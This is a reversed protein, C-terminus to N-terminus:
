YGFVARLPATTELIASRVDSALESRGKGVSDTTVPNLVNNLHRFADVDALMDAAPAPAGLPLGLFRVAEGVVGAPDAVLDEYRFLACRGPASRVFDLIASNTRMWREMGELFRGERGDMRGYSLAVDLPDRVLFIFQADPYLQGIAPLHDANLPTKDGWRVYTSRGVAAAYERAFLHWVMEPRREEPRAEAFARRVAAADLRYTAWHRQDRTLLSLIHSSALSWDGGATGFCTRTISLVYNEPPIVTDTRELILRRVLTTGCRGSGTIFFPPATVLTAPRTALAAEIM